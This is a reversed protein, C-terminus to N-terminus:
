ILKDLSTYELGHALSIAEYTIHGFCVNVGLSLEPKQRVAKKWGENALLSVYEMSENSLAISATKPYAGPMNAVAYHIIGEAEYIPDKHTTPHSTEFCGGQDIAVDVLISGKPIMSLMKKTIIYPAKAGKILIGGIIMDAQSIQKEINKKTLKVESANAPSRAIVTVEAGLGISIRESARAVVGNGIILVKAPKVTSAGCILLGKAGHDKSLYFSGMLPPMSGAIESMPKLLPLKGDIEITEYAIAIINKRMLLLTLEKLPALHLYTFLIQGDRLLGYESEQPEKVKVIMESNDFIDKAYSVITAGAAEYAEDSFDSGKGADSQVYVNHGDSVLKAVNLPQLSVRYEESKVEKPIGINM